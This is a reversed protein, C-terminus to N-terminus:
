ESRHIFEPLQTLEPVSDSSLTHVFDEIAQIRDDTLPHSRFFSLTQSQHGAAAQKLIEFLDAAGQLHGYYSQLTHFAEEDAASEQQRSFSLSTLLGTQEIFQGAIANNSIGALSSLALVVTLGRGISVLPDRHKIHAIEHALVTSLANEHPMQSLLGEFIIIHGGLTAFANVTDDDVYHATIVMEEPLQQHEALTNSLTQLYAQIKQQEPNLSLAALDGYQEELSAAISRETEFPIYRVLSEAMYSLVLVAVIIMGAAALLLWAFEKLPHTNSVNIGEPIDRNEYSM